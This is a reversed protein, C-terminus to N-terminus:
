KGSNSTLYKQVEMTQLTAESEIVDKGRGTFLWSINCGKSRLCNLAKSNIFHKNDVIRKMNRADSNSLFSYFTPFTGYYKLVWEILNVHIEKLGKVPIVIHPNFNNDLIVDINLPYGVGCLLWNYSVGMRIMKEITSRNPLSRDNLYQSINHNNIGFDKCFQKKSIYFEDIFNQLRSGFTEM